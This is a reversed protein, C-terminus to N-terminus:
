SMEGGGGSVRRERGRGEEGRQAEVFEDGEGRGGERKGRAVECVESPM